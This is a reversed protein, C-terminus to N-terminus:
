RSAGGAVDYKGANAGDAYRSSERLLLISGDKRIFTKTATFMRTPKM